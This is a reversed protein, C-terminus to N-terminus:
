PYHLDVRISIIAVNKTKAKDLIGHLICAGGSGTTCECSLLNHYLCLGVGVEGGLDTTGPQDLDMVIVDQGAARYLGGPYGPSETVKEPTVKEPSESPTLLTVESLHNLPLLTNTFKRRLRHM